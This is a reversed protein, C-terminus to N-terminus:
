REVGIVPTTATARTSSLSSGMISVTIGKLEQPDSDGTGLLDGDTSCAQLMVTTLLAIYSLRIKM